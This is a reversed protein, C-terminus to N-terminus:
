DMWDTKIIIEARIFGSKLWNQQIKPFKAGIKGPGFELTFYAFFYLQNFTNKWHWSDSNTFLAEHLWTYSVYKVFLKPM